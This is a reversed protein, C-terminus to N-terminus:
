KTAGTAAKAAKHMVMRAHHHARHRRHHRHHRGKAEAIGSGLLIASALALVSLTKITKKM